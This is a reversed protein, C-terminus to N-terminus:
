LINDDFGLKDRILYNPRNKTEWYIQALYESIIGLCIFQMGTLFLILIIIAQYTVIGTVLCYILYILNLIIVGLGLYKALLLPKTTHKVISNITYQWRKILSIKSIENNDKDEFVITKAPYGLWSFLGETFRERETVKLLAEGVQHSILRFAVPQSNIKQSSLKNIFKIMLKEFRNVQHNLVAVVQDINQNDELYDAMTLIDKTNAYYKSSFLCLYDGEAYNIGALLAADKNFTRSFSIVKVHKKDKQYVNAMELYTNDTSGDDIYIIEYKIDKLDNALATYVKAINHEENRCPIIVSIKM